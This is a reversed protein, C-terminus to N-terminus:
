NALLGGIQSIDYPTYLELEKANPIRKMVDSQYDASIEFNVNTNTIYEKSANYVDDTLEEEHQSSFGALKISAYNVRASADTEIVVTFEEFNTADLDVDLPLEVNETGIKKALEKAKALHEKTMSVRVSLYHSKNSQIKLSFLDKLEFGNEMVTTQFDLLQDIDIEPGEFDEETPKQILPFEMGDAIGSIAIKGSKPITSEIATAIPAYQEPLVKGLFNFFTNKLGASIHIYETANYHYFEMTNDLLSYTANIETDDANKAAIKVTGKTDKLEGYAAFGSADEASFLGKVGAELTANINELDVRATSTLVEGEEEGREQSESNFHFNVDKVSAKVNVNDMALASQLAVHKIKSNLDNVNDETVTFEETKNFNTHGSGGANCGALSLVALIIGTGLLSIKKM